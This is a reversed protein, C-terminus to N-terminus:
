INQIANLIIRDLEEQNFEQRSKAKCNDSLKQRLNFSQLKELAFIFENESDLAFLDEGPIFGYDALGRQHTITPFGRALPEFIKQQMGAGYFSPVLAIDMDTLFKDMDAVFGEYVVNNVLYPKFKEPFKSGTIHFAFTNGFEKYARPALDKLIFELARRNHSVNYTSGSFFVHLRPTERPTHTQLKGSLNRLPLVVVHKAGIKEYMKKEQPTIAFLVQATKATIKETFYKPIYKLYNLINRGDEELFHRAEFNISRVFIPLGKEKAMNYLPWLYTYDFWVADPKFEDLENRFVAQMNPEAYELVSGDLYRMNKFLMKYKEKKSKKDFVYPVDAVQVGQNFWYKKIEGANQWDFFKGIVRVEFGLRKLQRIGEARDQECAGAEPYPFRPTMILIKKIKSM